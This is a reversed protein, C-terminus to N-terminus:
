DTVPNRNLLKDFWEGVQGLLSEPDANNTFVVDAMEKKQDLPMQHKERGALEQPQWNREEAAREIRVAEDCDLFVLHTCRSAGLNHELLLAADVVIAPVDQALAREIEGVAEVRMVPHMVRNLFGLDLSDSFVRKALAKRDITADGDLIDKGFYELLADRIETKELCRHGIRDMDVVHAGRHALEAAVLSKGSAVGGLIGIVPVTTLRGNRAVFARMRAPGAKEPM